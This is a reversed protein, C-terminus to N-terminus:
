CTSALHQQQREQATAPQTTEPPKCLSLGRCGTGRPLCLGPSQPAPSPATPHAPAHCCPAKGLSHTQNVRRPFDSGTLGEDSTGSKPAAPLLCGGGSPHAQSCGLQPTRHLPTDPSATTSITSVCAALIVRGFHLPAHGHFVWSAFFVHPQPSPLADGEPSGRGQPDQEFSPIKPRM